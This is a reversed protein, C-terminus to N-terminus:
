TVMLREKLKLLIKKELRSVQVQSIQLKKAIEEQKMGLDYRYHLLLQERQELHAIENQLSVKMVVDEEKRNSVKDELLIPSGDKEYITEDLSYFFQNAEFALIFDAVDMSLADAIEQYTPERNLKQLLEEKKKSMQLYGEKLSRSIRMNGDDRFFRKIEGMIIPVAYTSFKVQYSTDFNNLAKMLGVCGIQFLDDMAIRQRSFRRVISYVLPSNKEVFISKAEEDGDKIRQILEENNASVNM